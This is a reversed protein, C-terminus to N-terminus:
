KKSEFDNKDENYHGLLGHINNCYNDSLTVTIDSIMNNSERVTITAGATLVALLTRNGKNTVHVQINVHVHIYEWNNIDSTM